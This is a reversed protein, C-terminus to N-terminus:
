VCTVAAKAVSMHQREGPRGAVRADFLGLESLTMANYASASGDM